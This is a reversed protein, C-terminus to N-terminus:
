SNVTATLNEVAALLGRCQDGRQLEDVDEGTLSEFFTRTTTGESQLLEALTAKPKFRGREMVVANALNNGFRRILLDATEFFIVEIEPLFAFANFHGDPSVNRLATRILGCKERAADPDFTDADTVILVSGGEHFLVNRGLSALNSQGQAAFFRVSIGALSGLIRRLVLVDSIGEVVITLDTM